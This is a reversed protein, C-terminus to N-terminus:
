VVSKRDADQRKKLLTALVTRAALKIGAREMEELLMERGGSMEFSRMLATPTFGQDDLFTITSECTPTEKALIDLLDSDGECLERFFTGLSSNTHETDSTVDKRPAPNTKKRPAPGTSNSNSPSSLSPASNVRPQNM